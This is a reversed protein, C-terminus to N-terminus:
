VMWGAFWGDSQIQPTKLKKANYLHNHKGSQQVFCIKCSYLDHIYHNSLSFVWSLWLLSYTMCISFLAFFIDTMSVTNCLFYVFALSIDVLHYFLPFIDWDCFAVFPSNLIAQFPLTFYKIKLNEFLDVKYWLGFKTETGNHHISTANLTNAPWWIDSFEQQLVFEWTLNRQNFWNKHLIDWLSQRVSKEQFTQIDSSILFTCRTQTINKLQIVCPMCACVNLVKNSDNGEKQKELAGELSEKVRTQERLLSAMDLFVPLVSVAICSLLFLKFSWPTM